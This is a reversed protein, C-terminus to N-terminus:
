EDYTGCVEYCDAYPRSYKGQERVIRKGHLLRVSNLFQKAVDGGKCAKALLARKCQVFVSLRVSPDNTDHGMEWKKKQCVSLDGLGVVDKKAAPDQLAVEVAHRGCDAAGGKGYLVVM